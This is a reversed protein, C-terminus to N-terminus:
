SGRPLGTTAKPERHSHHVCPNYHLTRAFNRRLTVGHKACLAVGRPRRTSNGADADFPVPGAKLDLVTM